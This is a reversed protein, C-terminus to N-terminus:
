ALSSLAKDISEILHQTQVEEASARGMYHQFDRLAAQAYARARLLLDRRRTPNTEQESVIAYMLAINSRTQGAGFRNGIYECIQVDKEYHERALDTQGVEAYLIRNIPIGKFVEPDLPSYVVVIERRQWRTRLERRLFRMGLFNSRLDGKNFRIHANLLIVTGEPSGHQLYERVAGKGRLRKIQAEPYANSLLEVIPKPDLDDILLFHKPRM